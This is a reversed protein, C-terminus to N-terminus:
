FPRREHEPQPKRPRTAPIEAEAALRDILDAPRAPAGIAQNLAGISRGGIHSTIGRKRLSEMESELKADLENVSTVIVGKAVGLRFYVAAAVAAGATVFPVVGYAALLGGSPAGLRADVRATLLFYDGFVGPWPLSPIASQLPLGCVVATLALIMAHVTADVGPVSASGAIVLGAFVCVFATLAGLSGAAAATEWVGLMMRDSRSLSRVRQAAELESLPRVRVNGRSPPTVVTRADATPDENFSAEVPAPLPAPAARPPPAPTNVVALSQQQEASVRPTDWRADTFQTVMYVGLHAMAALAVVACAITVAFRLTVLAPSVHTAHPSM